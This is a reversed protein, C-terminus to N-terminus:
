KSKIVSDCRRCVHEDYMDEHDFYNWCRECKALIAGDCKAVIKDSTESAFNVKAVNLYKALSKKDFKYGNNFELEVIAQNNKNIKKANRIIELETYV